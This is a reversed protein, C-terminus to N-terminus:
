KWYPEYPLPTSGSNVMIDTQAPKFSLSIFKTDNTINITVENNNDYSYGTIYSYDSRYQCVSAAGGLSLEASITIQNINAVDIFDSISFNSQTGISGDSKLYSGKVRENYNFLNRSKERVSQVPHWGKYNVTVESPQLTTDVSLTNAGAITPISIGSVEDAYDDIKRLPENVIGTTERALIYWITVPTGAAYQDALYQKWADVTTYSTDHAYFSSASPYASSYYFCVTKNALGAIGDVNDQTKYHSCITINKTRHLYSGLSCSLNGTGYSMLSWNEQGTFEYKRIRRTTEVEGLYVPTTINASSIPIKYGYPEYDLYKNGENLIINYYKIKGIAQPAIYFWINIKSYEGTNFTCTGKPTNYASALVTSQGAGAFVIAYGNYNGSIKEKEFSLCYQTNPTVDISIKGGYGPTVNEIIVGNPVQEILTNSTVPNIKLKDLINPTKEGCEQPQIPASPTPTGSQSMNGKLGVTANTGDAYIAAPLTLTDTATKHIYHPIDHWVESSYPEYPQPTSGENLMIESLTTIIDGGSGYNLYLTDNASEVTFTISSRTASEGSVVTGGINACVRVNGSVPSINTAFTFTKGIDDTTFPTAKIVYFQRREAQFAGDSQKYIGYITDADFLNKSVHYKKFNM